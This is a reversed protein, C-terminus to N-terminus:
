INMPNMVPPNLLPAEHLQPSWCKWTMVKVFYLSIKLWSKLMNLGLNEAWTGQFFNLLSDWRFLTIHRRINRKDKM